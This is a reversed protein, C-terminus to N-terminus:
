VLLILLWTLFARFTYSHGNWHFRIVNCFSYECNKNVREGNVLLEINPSKINPSVGAYNALFKDAKMDSAMWCASEISPEKLAHSFQALRSLQDIIGIPKFEFNKSVDIFFWQVLEIFHISKDSIKVGIIYKKFVWANYDHLHSVM